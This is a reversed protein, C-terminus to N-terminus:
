GFSRLFPDSGVAALTQVEAALCGRVQKKVVRFAPQSALERAAIVADAVIREAGALADIVGHAVLDQPSVVRNSLTLRRLLGVPVEHKM